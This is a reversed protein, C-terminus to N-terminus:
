DHFIQHRVRFLELDKPDGFFYNVPIVHSQFDAFSPENDILWIDNIGVTSYEQLAGLSKTITVGQKICQNISWYFDSRFSYEKYNDSFMKLFAEIFEDSEESYVISNTYRNLDRILELAYPRLVILYELGEGKEYFKLHLANDFWEKPQEPTATVKIKFIIVNDLNLCVVPRKEFSKDAEGRDIILRKIERLELPKDRKQWDRM